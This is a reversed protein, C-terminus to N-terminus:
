PDGARKTWPPLWVVKGNRREFRGHKPPANADDDNWGNHFKCAVTLNEANTEGGYKWPQMHHIQCQDAPANCKYGPCTPNEAGAMIRQKDNAFRETRYLNVPGKVPHIITVFGYEAFKRRVFEAGTIVAGNTMRLKIEDGNGEIIEALEDLNIVVNTIATTPEAGVHGFFIENFSDVPRKKDLAGEIDAIEAQTGTIAMTWLDNKRRYVTIGRQRTPTDRMEKLKAKALKEMALTDAPMRCLQKCLQWVQKLSPARLSYRVIVELTPVSHNREFAHKICDRQYSTFKTPGYFHQAIQHISRATKDPMGMRVLDHASHGQADTAVQMGPGLAAIFGQLSTM